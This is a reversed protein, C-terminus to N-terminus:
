NGLKLSVLNQLKGLGKKKNIQLRLFYFIRGQLKITVNM